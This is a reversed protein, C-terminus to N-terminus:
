NISFFPISAIVTQNCRFGHDSYSAFLLTVVHEEVHWHVFPTCQGCESPLANPQDTCATPILITTTEVQCLGNLAPLQGELHPMCDENGSFTSVGYAKSLTNIM